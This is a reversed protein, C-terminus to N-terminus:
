GTSEPSEAEKQRERVRIRVADAFQDFFQLGKYPRAITLIALLPLILCFIQGLKYPCIFSLKVM